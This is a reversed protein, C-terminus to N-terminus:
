CLHQLIELRSMFPSSDVPSGGGCGGGDINIIVVATFVVAVTVVCCSHGPNLEIDIDLLLLLFVFTPFSNGILSFFDLFTRGYPRHTAHRLSLRPRWGTYVNM